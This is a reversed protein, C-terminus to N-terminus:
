ACSFNLRPLLTEKFTQHQTCGMIMLGHEKKMRAINVGQKRRGKRDDHNARIIGSDIIIISVSIISISTIHCVYHLM